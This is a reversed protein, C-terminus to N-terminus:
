AREESKKRSSSKYEPLLVDDEGNVDVPVDIRVGVDLKDQDVSAAVTIQRWNRTVYRVRFIGANRAMVM